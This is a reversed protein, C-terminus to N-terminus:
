RNKGLRKQKAEYARIEKDTYMKSVMFVGGISGASSIEYHNDFLVLFSILIERPLEYVDDRIEGYCWEKRLLREPIKFSREGESGWTSRWCIDGERFYTKLLSDPNNYQEYESKSLKFQRKGYFSFASDPLCTKTYIKKLVNSVFQSDTLAKYKKDFRLSSLDTLKVFISDSCTTDCVRVPIDISMSSNIISNDMNVYPFLEYTDMSKRSFIGCGSLLLLSLAIYYKM